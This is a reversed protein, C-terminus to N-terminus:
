KIKEKEVEIGVAKKILYSIFDIHDKARGKKDPIEIIIPVNHILRYDKLHNGLIRVIEETIFLIGIDDREKIKNWLYMENKEPIFLEKIGALRLGAATDKDCLGALKM